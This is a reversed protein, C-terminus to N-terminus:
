CDTKASEYRALVESAAKSLDADDSAAVNKLVASYANRQELLQLVNGKVRSFHSDLVAFMVILVIAGVLALFPILQIM